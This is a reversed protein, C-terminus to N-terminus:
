TRSRPEAGLRSRLYGALDPAVDSVRGEREHVDIRRVTEDRGDIAQVALFADTEDEDWAIVVGDFEPDDVRYADRHGLVRVEHCDVGDTISLLRRFGETFRVGLDAERTHIVPAPVPPYLIRCDRLTVGLWGELEVRARGQAAQIKELSPLVLAPEGRGPEDPPALEWSQPWPSGDATRGELAELFGSRVISARFELSRGSATDRVPVWESQVRTVELVFNLNEFTSTPSIRVRDAAPADRSVEPTTRLQEVLLEFRPDGGKLVHQLAVIEEPRARKAAGGAGARFIDRLRM